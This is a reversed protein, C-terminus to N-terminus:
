DTKTRDLGPRKRTELGSKWVHLTHAVLVPCDASDTPNAATQSVLSPVTAKGTTILGFNPQPLFVAAANLQEGRTLLQPKHISRRTLWGKYPSCAIIPPKKLIVISEVQASFIDTADVEKTRNGGLLPLSVM